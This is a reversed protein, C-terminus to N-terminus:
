RCGRRSACIAVTVQDISLPVGAERLRDVIQVVRRQREGRARELRECLTADSPDVGLGLVHMQTEGEAESVSIEVGPVVEVGLERGRLAAPEAGRVDDHDTIAMVAVGRRAAEAVLEEPTFTGDSVNSHAHFDCIM